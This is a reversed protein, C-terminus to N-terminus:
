CLNICLTIACMVQFLLASGKRCGHGDAASIVNPCQLLVKTKDAIAKVGMMTSAAPASQVPVQVCANILLSSYEADRLTWCSYLPTLAACMALRESNWPRASAHSSKSAMRSRMQQRERRRLRQKGGAPKEKGLTGPNGVAVSMDTLQEPAIQM